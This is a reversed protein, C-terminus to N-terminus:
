ADRSSCSPPGGAAESIGVVSRAALLQLYSRVLGSAATAGSWVLVGAAIISRQVGRDIARRETSASNVHPPQHVFM